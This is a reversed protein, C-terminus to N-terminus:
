ERRPLTYAGCIRVNTYIWGAEEVRQKAKSPWRNNTVSENSTCSSAFSRLAPFSLFFSLFFSSKTSEEVTTLILIVVIGLSSVTQLAVFVLVEWVPLRVKGHLDVMLWDDTSSWENMWENVLAEKKGQCHRGHFMLMVAFREQEDSWDDKKQEKIGTFPTKIELLCM